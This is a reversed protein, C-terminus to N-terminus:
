ERGGGNPTLLFVSIPTDHDYTDRGGGYAIIQGRDNIAVAAVVLIGSAAPILDNLDRIGDNATWIFAHSGGTEVGSVGVVQGRSNIGLPMTFDGASLSGLNRMGERDTWIWAHVGSPGSSAGVVHGSNNIAYSESGSDGPLTGLARISGSKEWLVASHDGHASGSIGAILGANNISTAESFDSGPLPTLRQMGERQKWVFASVGNPGISSGVVEGAKNISRARSGSDGPLTGLNLIERNRTWLLARLQANTNSSGIIDGLDNIGRAESFDGGPLSALLQIQAGSKWVFGRTETNFVSGSRGVILGSNNIGGPMGSGGPTTGLDIVSYQDPQALAATTFCPLALLFFLIFRCALKICALIWLTGSTFAFEGRCLFKPGTQPLYQRLDISVFDRGLKMYVL